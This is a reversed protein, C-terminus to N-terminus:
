HYQIPSMMQALYFNIWEDPIGCRRLFYQTSGDQPLQVSYLEVRSGGEHHINVFGFTQRLDVRAFIAGRTFAGSLDAGCLNAGVLLTSGLVAGNLKADSLNVGYLSARHLKASSLDADSLDAEHLDTRSLDAKSLNTESLNAGSLDAKSLNISNLSPWLKKQVARWARDIDAGTLEAERLAAKRLDPRLKEKPEKQQKRWANWQIVGQKLLNVHEQNAM